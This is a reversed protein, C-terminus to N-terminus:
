AETEPEEKKQTKKATERKGPKKKGTGGESSLQAETAKVEAAELKKAPEPEAEKKKATKPEEAIEPKREELAITVHSLRRWIPTARGHARPMWRKLKRGENVVVSSVFLHREDLSFNNRANAVASELLKLMPGSSKKVTKGLQVAAQDARMGRILGAVLRAKRPTLRVNSLKATVKM